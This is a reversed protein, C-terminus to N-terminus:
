GEPRLSVRALKVQTTIGFKRFVKRLHYDVASARIFLKAAIESNTAGGVAGGPV